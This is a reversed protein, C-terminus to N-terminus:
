GRIKTKLPSIRVKLLRIEALDKVDVGLTQIEQGGETVTKITFRITKNSSAM